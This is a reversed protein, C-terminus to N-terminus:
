KETKLWESRTKLLKESVPIKEKEFMSISYTPNPGLVVSTSKSKGYREFDIHLTDGVKFQKLFDSFLIEKPLATGNVMVIIDGNDLGAKYAPSGIQTNNVIPATGSPDIRTSAGFYPENVNQKLAVGVSKMLDAYDPM